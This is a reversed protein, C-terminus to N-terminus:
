KKQAEPISVDIGLKPNMLEHYAQKALEGSRGQEDRLSLLVGQEGMFKLARIAGELQKDDKGKAMEYLRNRLVVRTFSHPGNDFMLNELQKELMVRAWEQATQKVEVHSIAVANDIYKFLLGKELEDKSWYGFTNFWLHGLDDLAPRPNPLNGYTAIARAAVDPTGGLALALAADNMLAEEKLMEFLQAEITKDIGSKAIARAV